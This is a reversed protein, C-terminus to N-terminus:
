QKPTLQRLTKQIEKLERACRRAGDPDAISDYKLSEIELLNKTRMRRAGHKFTCIVEIKKGKLQAHIGEYQGWDIRRAGRPELAPIGEILPGGKMEEEEPPPPNEGLGFARHPIVDSLRFRIDRAIGNGINEIVIQLVAPRSQDGRVYLVVCPATQARLIRHTLWVYVGTLIALFGPVILNWVSVFDAAASVPM